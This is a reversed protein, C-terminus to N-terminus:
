RQTVLCSIALLGQMRVLDSLYKSNLSLHREAVILDLEIGQHIPVAPAPRCFLAEAATSLTDDCMKPGGVREDRVFILNRSLKTPGTPLGCSEMCFIHIYQTVGSMYYTQGPQPSSNWCQLLKDQQFDSSMQFDFKSARECFTDIEDETSPDDKIHLKEWTKM